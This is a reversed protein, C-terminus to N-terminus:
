SYSNRGKVLYFRLRHPDLNDPGFAEIAQLIKLAIKMIGVVNFQRLCDAVSYGKENEIGDLCFNVM